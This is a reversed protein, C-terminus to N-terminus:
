CPCSVGRQVSGILGTWNGPSHEYGYMHDEQVSITYTFNAKKTISQLIEIFMGTYQTSDQRSDMM